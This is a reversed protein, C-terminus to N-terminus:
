HMPFTLFGFKLEFSALQKLYFFSKKPIDFHSFLYNTRCWIQVNRTKKGLVLFRWTYVLNSKYYPLFNWKWVIVNIYSFNFIWIKLEFSAMQKLYFFSNKQFILTPFCTIQGADFTAMGRQKEWCKFRWTYVLNCKYYLLFNWKWVIVYTYGIKRWQM